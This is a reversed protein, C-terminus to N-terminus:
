VINNSAENKSMQKPNFHIEPYTGALRSIKKDDLERFPIQLMNSSLEVKEAAGFGAPEELPPLARLMRHLHRNSDLEPYLVKLVTHPELPSM